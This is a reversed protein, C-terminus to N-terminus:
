ASMALDPCIQLCQHGAHGGISRLTDVFGQAVPHKHICKVGYTCQDVMLKRCIQGSRAMGASWQTQVKAVTVLM